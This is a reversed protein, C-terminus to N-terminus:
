KSLAEKLKDKIDNFTVDTPGLFQQLKPHNKLSTLLDTLRRAATQEFRAIRKQLVAILFSQKTCYESHEDGQKKSRSQHQDYEFERIKTRLNNQETKLREDLMRSEEDLRQLLAKKAKEVIEFAVEETIERGDAPFYVCLPDNANLQQQANADEDEGEAKPEPPPAEVLIDTSEMEGYLKRHLVVDVSKMKLYPRTEEETRFQIWEVVEKAIRQADSLGNERIQMLQQQMNVLTWNDIEPANPHFRNLESVFERDRDHERRFVISFSTICGEDHHYVVEMEGNVLDFGLKYIGERIAYNEVHSEDGQKRAYKQTMREIRPGGKYLTVTSTTTSSDPVLMLKREIMGDDRGEFHEVIKYGFREERSKLKDLRLSSDFELRRYENHHIRHVRVALNRKVEGNEERAAGGRLTMISAPEFREVMEEKEMYIRREILDERLSQFEERIEFVGNLSVTYMFYRRILGDPRTYAAYREELANKWLIRREGRPYKEFILKEDIKLLGFVPSPMKEPSVSRLEESKETQEVGLVPTWLISDTFDMSEETKQFDPPQNNIWVNRQNFALEIGHFLESNLPYIDGTGPDIFLSSSVDLRASNVMVWCMMRRETYEDVPPERQFPPDPPAPPPAAAAKDFESNLNLVRDSIAALYKNRNGNFDEFEKPPTEVGPCSRYSRDCLTLERNAYGVIVYADFGIGTLITVLLVSLDYCDGSQVAATFSPTCIMQPPGFFDYLIEYNCLDSVFQAALEITHAEILPLATPRILSPLFVRTGGETEVTLFVHTRYPNEKQYQILFEDIRALFNEYDGTVRGESVLDEHEAVHQDVRESKPVINPLPHTVPFVSGLRFSMPSSIGSTFPDLATNLDMTITVESESIPALEM